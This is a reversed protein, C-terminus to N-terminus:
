IDHLPREAIRYADEETFAGVRTRKLAKLYAGTHLSEGIDRALSRIYVGSGCEAKIRLLPYAYDILDISYIHVTKPEIDFKEGRRARRYAPVGSIKIASHRPPVQQIDGIYNLLVRKISEEAPPSPHPEKETIPGESDDTESTKGLEITAEYVKSTNRLTEQLKPTHEKGIAVVLVGEALPDLTGGHGIKEGPFQRKVLRIVDYSSMGSPKYIPIIGKHLKKVKKNFSESYM